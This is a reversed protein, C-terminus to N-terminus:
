PSSAAFYGSRSRVSLNKLQKNPPTVKIRVKHWKGAPGPAGAPVFGVAYQHRLEVAIREAVQNVAKGGTEPFFVAGGTVGALETLISVGSVELETPVRLGAVGIAYLVVDSEQLRRRLELFSLRSANDLGDSVLLIVHRRSDSKFQELAAACADYVGSQRSAGKGKREGALKLREGLLEADRTWGALERASSDFEGLWYETEPNGQRVLSLVAPRMEKIQDVTSGSVDLLILVNAPTDRDDFSALARTEKGEYVSFDDKRLGAVYRGHEDTVTVTLVVPASQLQPPQASADTQQQARLAVPAALLCAACVLHAVRDPTHTRRSLPNM